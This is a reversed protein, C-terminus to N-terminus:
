INLRGQNVRRADRAVRLAMYRVQYGVGVRKRLPRGLVIARSRGASGLETSNVVQLGAAHVKTQAAPTAKQEAGAGKGIFGRDQRPKAGCTGRRRGIVGVGTGSSM